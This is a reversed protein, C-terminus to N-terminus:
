AITGYPNKQITIRHGGNTTTEFRIDARIDPLLTGLREAWEVVAIGQPDSFIESFGLHAFDGSTVLRYCDIHSFRWDGGPIDYQRNIIFTPSVLRGVIGLGAAFGQTFTTKGSGLEGYLCVVIPGKLFSDKMQRLLLTSFKSGVDQTEKASETISEYPYDM